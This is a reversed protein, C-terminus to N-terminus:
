LRDRVCRIPGAISRVYYSTNGDSFPTAYKGDMGYHLHMVNVFNGMIATANHYNGCVGTRVGAGNGLRSGQTPFFFTQGEKFGEMYVYLGLRKPNDPTIPDPDVINPIGSRLGNSTFSLWMDGPSVRWGSPCPDFISKETGYNAYIEVTNSSGGQNNYYYEMSGDRTPILGGWLKDDHDDGCWDGFNGLPNRNFEGNVDGVDWHTSGGVNQTAGMFVTPHNVAYRVPDDLAVVAGGALSYFLNGSARTDATMGVLNENTTDYTNSGTNEQTYDRPTYDGRYRAEFSWDVNRMPPFPDKRGWQYLMGYVNSDRADKQEFALAGLNCPMVQYGYVRPENHHIGKNDWRYTTYRIANRLNGPDNNTVWIHWSWLITGEANYAAVLANGEVGGTQVYIKKETADYRVLEPNKETNGIADKTQWVIGVCDIVKEGTPDDADLYDKFNYGGGTEVRYYPEFSMLTNTRVIYCNSSPTHPLQDTEKITISVNYICNRKINFNDSDVTGSRPYARYFLYQTGGEDDVYEVEVAIEFAKAPHDVENESEVTYIGQMNEAMYLTYVTNECTPTNEDGITTSHWYGPTNPYNTKDDDKGTRARVLCASSISNTHINRLTMDDREIDVTVQVKAFMRTLPVVIRAADTVQVNYSNGEMPISLSTGKEVFQPAVGVLELNEWAAQDTVVQDALWTANETNAVICVVSKEGAGNPRLYIPLDELQSQDSITYYRPKTLRKGSTAEFQCVWIDHVAREAETDEVPAKTDAQLEVQLNNVSLCLSVEVLEGEDFDDATQGTLLEDSCGGALWAMLALLVWCWKSKM